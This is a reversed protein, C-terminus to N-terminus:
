GQRNSMQTGYKGCTNANWNSGASTADKKLFTKISSQQTSKKSKAATVSALPVKHKKNRTSKKPCM